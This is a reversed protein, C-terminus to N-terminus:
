FPAQSDYIAELSAVAANFTRHKEWADDVGEQTFCDGHINKCTLWAQLKARDVGDKGYRSWIVAATEKAGDANPDFLSFFYKGFEKKLAEAPTTSTGSEAAPGRQGIRPSMDDNFKANCGGKKAYCVFGGGYEPKSPIVAEVGCSPCKKAPPRGYNDTTAQGGSTASTQRKDRETEKGDHDSDDLVKEGVPIVLGFFLGYKFAAAMAKNTAKDGGFDQGEGALENTMSSGDPAHFTVCLILDVYSEVREKHESQSTRIREVHYDHVMVSVSVGHKVLVPGCHNLADDIGRFNYDHHDNRQGKGIAGVEEMVKPLLLYIQGVPERVESDSNDQASV